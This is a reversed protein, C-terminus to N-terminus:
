QTLKDPIAPYTVSIVSIDHLQTKADTECYLGGSRPLARYKLEPDELRSRVPFM